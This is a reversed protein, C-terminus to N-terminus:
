AMEGKQDLRIQYEALAMFLFIFPTCLVQQYCFINHGVYTAVCAAVAVLLPSKQANRLFRVLASLFIGLYTIAGLIGENVMMNMWENHANQLINDGWKSRIYADYFEYSYSAFCDPGVGFLKRVPNMERYIKATASWTFGRGNGWEDNFTLYPVKNLLEMTSASLSGKAGLRLLVIALLVFCVAVIYLVNRFLKLQKTWQINKRSLFAFLVVFAVSLLILVFEVNSFVLFTSLTDLELIPNPHLLLLLRMFKPAVSFLLLVEFFRMMKESSEVSVYFLALMMFAFAIYASDSNQSVLTTFGALTFIGSLVRLCTKKAYFFCVIGLPMVTCIFSSYWSAQGLTSLFLGKYYDSIDAYVGIPDIMMRHLIGIVYTYFAVTCLTGLMIQWGKGFRSFVFYLIVFTLQSFLGMFWGDYGWWAESRYPSMFYSLLAALLYALVMDDLVSLRGLLAKPKFYSADECVAYIFWFLILLLIVPMGYVFIHAYANYKATGIQYYGDKMYLPVFIFLVMVFIPLIYSLLSEVIEKGVNESQKKKKAIKSSM